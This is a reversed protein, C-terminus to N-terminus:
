KLNGEKDINIEKRQQTIEDTIWKLYSIAMNVRTGGCSNDEDKKEEKARNKRCFVSSQQSRIGTTVPGPIYLTKTM